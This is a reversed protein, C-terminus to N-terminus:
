NELCLKKRIEKLYRWLTTRDVAYLNALANMKMQSSLYFLDKEWQELKEYKKFFKKLFALQEDDPDLLYMMGEFVEDRGKLKYQLVENDIKKIKM